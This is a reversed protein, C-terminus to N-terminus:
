SNLARRRWAGPTQGTLSRIQRTMHSQDSFGADASVASLSRGADGLLRMARGVQRQRSYEGISCRFTRRFARALYVPHVGALRALEQMTPPQTDAELRDRVRLLWSSGGTEAVYLGEAAAFIELLTSEMILASHSDCKNAECRLRAALTLFREDKRHWPQDFLRVVTRLERLESTAVEVTLLETRVPDHWQAHHEGEPHAIVTGPEARRRNSGFREDYGGAIVISLTALEHDHQSIRLAPAYLGERLRFGGVQRLAAVEGHLFESRRETNMM